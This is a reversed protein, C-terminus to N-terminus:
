KRKFRNMVSSFIRVEQIKLIYAFTFYIIIGGCTGILVRIMSTYRVILNSKLAATIREALINIMDDLSFEVILLFLSLAIWVPLQRILLVALKRLPIIKMKYKLFYLLAMSNIVASISTSLALAGQRLTHILTLNLALNIFVTFM